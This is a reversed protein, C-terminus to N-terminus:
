AFKKQSFMADGTIIKGGIASSELLRVATTIGNEGTEMAMQNLVGRNQTLFLSLINLVAVGGQGSGIVTKWDMAIHNGASNNEALVYLGFVAELARPGM